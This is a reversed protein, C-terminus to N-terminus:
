VKKLYRTRFNRICGPIYFEISLNSNPFLSRMRPTVRKWPISKLFRVAFDTFLPYTLRTSDGQKRWFFQREPELIPNTRVSEELNRIREKIGARIRSRLESAAKDTYTLVLISDIGLPASTGAEADWALFSERLLKLVLYVITHTKGTGASAGIFGNKESDIGDAFSPPFDISIPKM